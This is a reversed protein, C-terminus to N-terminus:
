SLEAQSLQIGASHQHQRRRQPCEPLTSSPWTAPLSATSHPTTLPELQVWLADCSVQCTFRYRFVSKPNPDLM